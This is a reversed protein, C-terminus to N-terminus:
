FGLSDLSVTEGQTYEARAQAIDALDQPTAVDDPLMHSIVEFILEQERESLLEVVDILKKATPSM